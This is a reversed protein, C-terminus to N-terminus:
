RIAYYSKVLEEAAQYDFDYTSSINELGGKKELLGARDAGQHVDQYTVRYELHQKKNIKGRDKTM